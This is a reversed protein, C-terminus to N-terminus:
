WWFESICAACILFNEGCVAVGPCGLAGGSEETQKICVRKVDARDHYYSSLPSALHKLLGAQPKVAATTAAPENQQSPAVARVGSILLVALVCLAAAPAASFDRM